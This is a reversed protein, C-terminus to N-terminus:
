ESLPMPPGQAGVVIHVTIRDRPLRWSLIDDLYRGRKRREFRILLAQQQAHPTVDQSTPIAAAIGPTRM